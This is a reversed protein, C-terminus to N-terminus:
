AYTKIMTIKRSREPEPLSDVWGPVPQDPVIFEMTTAVVIDSLAQLAATLHGSWMAYNSHVSTATNSTTTTTIPHRRRDDDYPRM